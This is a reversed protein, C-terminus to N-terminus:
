FKRVARSGTYRSWTKKVEDIIVKPAAFPSTATITGLFVKGKSGETSSFMHYPCKGGTEFKDGLPFEVKGYLSDGGNQTITEDVKKVNSKNYTGDSGNIAIFILRLEDLAPAYWGDGNNKCWEFFPFLSWSKGTENIYEGIADMNKQGDDEHFANTDFKSKKDISWEGKFRDLSMILGHEGTEDVKIVIGKIGDKNYLDGVKYGASVNISYIFALILFLVQKM